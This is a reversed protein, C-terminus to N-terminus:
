ATDSKVSPHTAPRVAPEDTTDQGGVLQEGVVQGDLLEVIRDARRAVERDHTVMVMTQGSRARLASIEDLIANGTVRDLNGTPEDALLLEPENILARAIAVRQREGGSLQAPRHRLRDALGFANLLAKARARAETRVGPYHGGHRVMAGITVNEMVTLEPLLHYFQFVFGVSVARFRDLGHLGMRALPQGNFVVGGSGDRKARDPRDLGGLLHLLTSKGSGSAGLIAVWEGRDVTLSAGRLVPVRVRGLRYTKHVENAVIIPGTGARSVELRHARPTTEPHHTTADTM